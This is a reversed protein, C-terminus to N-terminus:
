ARVLQAISAAPRFVLITMALEHGLTLALVTALMVVVLVLVVDPDLFSFVM